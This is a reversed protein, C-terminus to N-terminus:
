DYCVVERPLNRLILSYDPEVPKPKISYLSHRGGLERKIVLNADVLRILINSIAKHTVGEIKIDRVRTEGNTELYDLVAQQSM